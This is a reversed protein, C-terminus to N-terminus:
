NPPLFYEANEIMVKEFTVLENPIGRESKFMKPIPCHDSFGGCNMDTGKATCWAVERLPPRPLFARRFNDCKEIM